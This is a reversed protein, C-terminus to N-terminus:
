YSNYYTIYKVSEDLPYRELVLEVPPSVSKTIRWDDGKWFNWQCGTILMLEAFSLECLSFLETHLVGRVRRLFSM